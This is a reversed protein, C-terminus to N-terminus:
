VLADKLWENMEEVLSDKFNLKRNLSVPEEAVSGNVNGIFEDLSIHNQAMQERAQCQLLPQHTHAALQGQLFPQPSTGVFVNGANSFASGFGFGLLNSAGQWQDVIAM